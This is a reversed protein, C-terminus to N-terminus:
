FKYPGTGGIIVKKKTIINNYKYNQRVSQFWDLPLKQIDDVGTSRNYKKKEVINPKIEELEELNPEDGDEELEELNQDEEYGDEELEEMNAEYGDEELEEMNPEDRDKNNNSNDQAKFYYICKDIFHDFASKVDFLLDNPPNNVLLDGFLKNIRDEYLEKDTRRNNDNKEKIRKNLKLLQTKSILYNLTLENVLDESM